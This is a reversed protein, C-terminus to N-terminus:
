VQKADNKASDILAQLRRTSARATEVQPFMHPEVSIYGTYGAKILASIQGAWDVDGEIQYSYSGNSSRVIDKYHVHAIRSSVQDYGDPFPCEGAQFSNSPDWNVMLAPHGVRDLLTKTNEGTDAWFDAETEVALQLGAKGVLDAAQYLADVLAEPPVETSNSGRAFGFSIITRIEFEQAFRISQPLLENLHLDLMRRSQQWDQYLAQDIAQVPFTDRSENPFPFKFLGPSIAALNADFADLVERVRQRQFDTLLPVRNEGFGRLEFNKIGWATGLEVATTFDASIEDTVICLKMTM